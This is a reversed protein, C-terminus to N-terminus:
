KEEAMDSSKHFSKEPGSNRKKEIAQFLYNIENGFFQYLKMVLYAIDKQRKGAYKQQFLFSSQM